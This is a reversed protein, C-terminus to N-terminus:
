AGRLVRRLAEVVRDPDDDAMGAYFPLSLTRRYYEDAGPLNPAPALCRYYPQRHVPIYLVQTGIGEAQLARMVAARHTGLGEFDILVPYLHRCPDCDQRTAVPKVRPHFGSLLRDYRRKLAKRRAVFEELRRLQSLGLACAIDTLRYNFGLEGLEHYWPNPTGDPALAMDAQEFRDADREIGHSRLRRLRMAIAPDHTTIAGGEGTTMTKVPHLSFCALDSHVCAGVEVMAGGHGYRSALAHCADEILFMGHAQTEARIAAMDCVEGNLHVVVAAKARGGARKLADRLTEVTVLGTDADCDMFEIRAGTYRPGNASAMFSMAPALVVDGPGIDLAMAALHLAATGNACAVAEAAGVRAAFATEFEGVKPGTTLFDGRLADAVAAIDTEDISQKGYPLFPRAM